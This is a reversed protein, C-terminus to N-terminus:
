QEQLYNAVWSGGLAKHLTIRAIIMNERAAILNQRLQLTNLEEQLVNLFDSTGSLYRNRAERLTQQSLRLQKQLSAELLRYHDEQVLSDEVEKVANIVTEGYLVLRQDVVAGTRGVEAQRRRGDILPTALNGVLNLLWNDFLSGPNESSYTHSATLKVAPLRDARAEIETWEADRLRLSAARVDPRSSLLDIPLGLAPITSIAPFEQQRVLTEDLDAQGLLLALRRKGLQWDSVVPILAADIKEIAQQQQYIDLASSRGQVFRWKILKLLEQQLVLQQELVEQQRKAAILQVWQRAIEGTVTVVAAQLDEHSAEARLIASERGAAIRGWLDLEYSAAVGLSWETEGQQRGRNKIEFRSGSVGLDVQPFRAAGAKVAEFRTQDLRAWADRITFNGQVGQEMLHNLEISNLAQWWPFEQDRSESPLSFRTPLGQPPETIVAPRSFSCASLLVSLLLVSLPHIM